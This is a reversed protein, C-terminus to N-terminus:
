TWPLSPYKARLSASANKFFLMADKESMSEVKAALQDANMAEYDNGIVTGGTGDISHIVPKRTLSDLAAKGGKEAAKSLLGDKNMLFYADALIGGGRRTKAMFDLTEQIVDAIKKTDEPKMEEPKKGPFFDAMLTETFKAVEAESEKRLNEDAQRTEMVKQREAELYQSQLMTAYAPNVAYVANLTKGDYPGGVVKMEGIDPTEAVPETMEATEPKWGEPAEEPYMAYYKEQGLERYLNFKREAEIKGREVEQREWFLTKWRKAPIKTGDEDVIYGGEVRLGMNEAAKKEEETHEPEKEPLKEDKPIDKVDGEVPKDGGATEQDAPLPVEPADEGLIALEEPTFVEAAEGMIKGKRHM